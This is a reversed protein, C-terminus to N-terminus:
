FLCLLNLREESNYLRLNEADRAWTTMDQQDESENQEVFVAEEKEGFIITRSDSTHVESQRLWGSMWKDSKMEEYTMGRSAATIALEVGLSVEQYNTELGNITPEIESGVYLCDEDEVVTFRSEEPWFSSVYNIDKPDSGNLRALELTKELDKKRIGFELWSGDKSIRMIEPIWEPLDIGNSMTYEDNVYWEGAEDLRFDLESQIRSVLEGSENLVEGQEIM